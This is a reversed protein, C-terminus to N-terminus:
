EEFTNGFGVSLWHYLLFQFRVDGTQLFMQDLISKFETNEPIGSIEGIKSDMLECMCCKKLIVLVSEKELKVYKLLIQLLELYDNYKESTEDFQM